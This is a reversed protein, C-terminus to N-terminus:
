QDFSISGTTNNVVGSVGDVSEVSHDVLFGGDSFNNGWNSLNDGWSIMCWDGGVVCWNGSVVCWDTLECSM